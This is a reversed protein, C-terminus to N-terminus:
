KTSLWEKLKLRCKACLGAKDPKLKGMFSKDGIVVDAIDERLDGCKVCREMRSMANGGMDKSVEEAAEIFSKGEGFGGDLIHPKGGHLENAIEESAEMFSKDKKRGFM